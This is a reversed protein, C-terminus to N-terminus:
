AIFFILHMFNYFFLIINFRSNQNLDHTEEYTEYGIYSVILTQNGSETTDFAFSGMDDSSSGDFTNKLYVNAYIIPNGDEDTVTGVILSACLFSIINSLILVKCCKM